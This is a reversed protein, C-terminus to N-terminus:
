KKGNHSILGRTELWERTKGLIALRSSRISKLEDLNRVGLLFMAIKMEKIFNELYKQLNKEDPYAMDEIVQVLIPYGICVLNAGLAIAKVAEIGNRIGGGALIPIQKNENRMAIDLLSWLTPTGWFDFPSKIDEGSQKKLLTVDRMTNMRAFSTGGVGHIDLGSVGMDWYMRADEPSLGTTMSKILIPTKIESLFSQLKDIFNQLGLHTMEESEFWLIEQLANLYIEVADAKIMNICDEFHAKTFSEEVLFRAGLNGMVFGDPNEKRVIEYSARVKKNKLGSIQDGVAMGINFEKALQALKKNIETFQEDGGAMASIMIPSSLKKGFFECSLDIENYPITPTKEILMIDEFYNYGRYQTDERLAIDFLNIQRTSIDEWKM